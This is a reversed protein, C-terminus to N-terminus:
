NGNDFQMKEETKKIIKGFRYSVGLYLIQADRRRTSLQQIYATNLESKERLTRLIDSAALLVSIKKKFLDQRIGMNLVFSPYNKGQPTLRASRYNASIQAMTNPTFSLTSNFNTSFSLITKKDFYGLNTANIQNYFFNTSLNSSFSKGAKVSFILELGASQDNSLNQQTTLLVSDNLPVTVQTFGNQKYRYYISPVFSFVKDQYKYGFEASHIIEPLLKANGARVNYPDQYEPFPNIDDGEPRHVRRSYNLQLQGKKLQYAFHVTPYVKLYDNKILTDRTLQNGRIISEEIRLGVSYSFKEYSKQYTGYLGHITQNFLFRNTKVKDIIFKSVSPDYYEGYFNFDQQQFAGSYGAELKSSESLTNSYDITLEQQNDGQGIRTNDFTSNSGPFRYANQYHNDEGEISSAIKLEMRLTHDEGPFNHEWFATADKEKQNEPDYRLRDLNTIVGHNKDYFIKSNVDNRVQDRNSYNGSIGFSNYKDSNYTAGLIALHTLPRADSVGTEAYYGSTKLTTADFSERTIENSRMRSDQRIGYNGFVNLKGPKYNLTASGNYRDRNGINGTISGNWGGKISKKLVINIIGSTGDPKYRASPNTIVEIREITNAPFQQLVEAKNLKGLLPSTRGNILIMVDGSGRLSVNGDLDVEVSPINKLVDSATGSQAMIDKTVDYSKRDISTNLISKTATVTVNNIPKSALLIEITGLNMRPKGTVTVPMYSREYGIFSYRLLYKGNKVQDITFRGKSDTISGLVVLSDAAKLLEVNAFEVPSKSAADIIIGTVTSITQQGNVSLGILLFVLATFNRLMMCNLPQIM